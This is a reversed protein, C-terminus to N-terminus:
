NKGEDKRPDLDHGVEREVQNSMWIKDKDIALVASELRIGANLGRDACRCKLRRKRLIIGLSSCFIKKGKGIVNKNSFISKWTTQM